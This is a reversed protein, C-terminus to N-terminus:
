NREKLGVFTFGMLSHFTVAVLITVYSASMQVEALTRLGQRFIQAKIPIIKNTTYYVISKLESKTPNFSMIAVSYYLILPNPEISSPNPLHGTRIKTPVCIDQRCKNM